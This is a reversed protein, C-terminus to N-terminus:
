GDHPQSQAIDPDFHIQSRKFVTQLREIIEARRERAWDPMSAAWDRESPIHVDYEGRGLYDLLLEIPAIEGEHLEEYVWHTGVRSGVHFGRSLLDRKRQTARWFWRFAFYTVAGLIAGDLVAGGALLLLAVAMALAGVGIGAAVVIRFSNDLREGM